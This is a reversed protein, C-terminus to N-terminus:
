EFRLVPALTVSNVIIPKEATGGYPLVGRDQNEYMELCVPFVEGSPLTAQTFRAYVRNTGLYMQGSFLTHDPLGGWPGISEAAVPGEQAPVPQAGGHFPPFLGGHGGYNIDLKEMAEAAGPPCEAPPPPPRLQPGSACATGVACGAAALSRLKKSTKMPSDKSHTASAVPAPTPSKRPEAGSGVDGTVKAPAMEQRPSAQQSPSPPRSEWRQALVAFVGLVAVLVLGM